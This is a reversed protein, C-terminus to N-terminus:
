EPSENNACSAPDKACKDAATDTSPPGAQPAPPAPPTDPADDTRPRNGSGKAKNKKGKGKGKKNKKKNSKGTQDPSM